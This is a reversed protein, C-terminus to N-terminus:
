TTYQRQDINVRTLFNHSKDPAATMNEKPIIQLNKALVIFM